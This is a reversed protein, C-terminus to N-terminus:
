QTQGKAQLDADQTNELVAIVQPEVEDWNFAQAKEVVAFYPRVAVVSVGPIMFLKATIANVPKQNRGCNEEVGTILLARSHYSRYHESNAHVQIIVTNVGSM